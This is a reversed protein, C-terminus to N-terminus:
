ADKAFCRKDKTLETPVAPQTGGAQIHLDRRKAWVYNKATRVTGAIIEWTDNIAYKM